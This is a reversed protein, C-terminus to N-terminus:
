LFYILLGLVFAFLGMSEALAMGIFLYTREGAAAAPNRIAAQLYAGFMIGLGAGAGILGTMAIGAGLAKAAHIDM